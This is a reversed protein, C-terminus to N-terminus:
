SGGGGGAGPPDEVPPDEIPPDEVPPDEPVPEEPVPEEIPEEIPQVVAEEAPEDPPNLLGELESPDLTPVGESPEEPEPLAKLLEDMRKKFNSATYGPISYVWPAHKANLEDVEAQVEEPTKGIPEEEPAPAVPEEPEGGAEPEVPEVPEEEGGVPEAGPPAPQPGLQSDARLSEEYRASLELWSKEDQEKLRAVLVLGDFTWFESKVVEGESFDIEAAPVVDDLTLRSISTAVANAVGDWSLERGEPVDDVTFNNDEPNAKYVLLEEGDPHWVRAASVREREIELILNDLWNSVSTDLWLSGTVEWSKAEGAKRVYLSPEGAGSRRPRTNGIIVDALTEGAADRLTVRKSTSDAEGPDQVGIDPYLAPNSTKAELTEFGAVALATEKVKDFKAPYGGKAPMGWVGDKKELTLEGDQSAVTLGAVANVDLEPFLPQKGTSAVSTRKSGNSVVTALVVIILTAIGLIALSKQNM